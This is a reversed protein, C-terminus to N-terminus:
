SWAGNVVRHIKGRLWSGFPAVWVDKAQVWSGGVAVKVGAKTIFTSAGSWAGWGYGNYARTRAWHQTSSKLSAPTNSLSNVTVDVVMGSVIDSRESVQLEYATIPNGGDNPAVWSVSASRSTTIGISPAGQQDPVTGGTTFAAAGSWTSWGIANAARVRAFYTTARSLGGVQVGPATYADYLMSAFGADRAVQLEWQTIGSGGNNPASWTFNASSATAAYPTPAAMQDPATALTNFQTTPGWAGWGFSNRANIRAYYTTARIMGTFTIPDGIRQFDITGGAFSPDRTLQTQYEIIGDGGNPQAPWWPYCSSSSIDLVAPASFPGPYTASAGRELHAGISTPGGLAWTGTAGISFSVDATSALSFSAILKFPNGREYSFNGSGASGGYTASGFWTTTDGAQVYFEVISGTDRIVLRGRNGSAVEYDAM